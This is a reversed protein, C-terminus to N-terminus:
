ITGSAAVRHPARPLHRLRVGAAPHPQAHPSIFWTTETKGPAPASSPSAQQRAGQRLLRVAGYETNLRILAGGSGYSGSISPSDGGKVVKLGPGSFDSEVEGQRSKADIQFNSASPLTLSIEGKRLEVDIPHTPPKGARLQVDGNTDAIKVSHQFDNVTIDKQRTTLDLPGEIGNLDLSGVDMTLRGTIRQATLNTRLSNYRLTQAINRFQVDGSFEGNVTVTGTVGAVDIDGGRGEVELSGNLDRVATLGGSKEVRVLGQVNAVHTDGHRDTVTQDGQLGDLIIDGREATVETSTQKPVRLTIDLRIDRGGGSLSDQNTQLLSRGAQDVIEVKLQDSIRRADAESSAWITKKVVADFTKQDSARIEVDGRRDVLLLHPQAPAPRSFTQTYTYSNLFLRAFGEDGLTEHWPHLVIKSVLTGLALILILLIVESASFLSPPAQEPHARAMMYDILKSVGWFIILIPWFKAIIQWPRVEPNFNQWLFIVGVAILVLAWFISGRRYGYVSM